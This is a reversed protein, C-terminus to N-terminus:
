ESIEHLLYHITEGVSWTVSYAVVISMLLAKGEIEHLFCQVIKSVFWLVM